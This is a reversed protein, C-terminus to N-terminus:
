VHDEAEQRTIYFHIGHSCEIFPSDDFSDARVTEGVRYVFESNYLGVGEVPDEQGFLALM